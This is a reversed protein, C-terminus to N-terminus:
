QRGRMPRRHQGASAQPGSGLLGQLPFGLAVVEEGLHLDLGPRFRARAPLPQEVRLLALDNRPDAFVLQAAMSRGDGVISIDAADEVVHANSLVHCRDIAVGSGSATGPRRERGPAERGDTGPRGEGTLRGAWNQDLGFSDAAGFLGQVFGGGNAAVRWGGAHRYIEVLILATEPRSVLDVRFRLAGFTLTLSAYDRFSAGGGPGGSLYALLALREVEPPLQRLSLHLRGEEEFRAGPRLERSHSDIPPFISSGRRSRDLAVLALALPPRLPEVLALVLEDEVPAREGAVLDRM